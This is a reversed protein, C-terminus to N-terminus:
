MEKSWWEGWKTTNKMGKGGDRERETMRREVEEEDM